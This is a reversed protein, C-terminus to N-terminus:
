EIFSKYNRFSSSRFTMQIPNLSIGCQLPRALFIVLISKLEQSASAEINVEEVSKLIRFNYKV